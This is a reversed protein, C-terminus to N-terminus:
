DKDGMNNRYETPTQGVIKQFQQHLNARHNFGAMLAVRELPIEPYEKLIRKAEAIRLESRWTRFDSPMYCRFYYRLFNRNTGLWQVIDDVGVDKQRYMKDEVWKELAAKLRQEEERLNLKEDETLDQSEIETIEEILNEKGSLATILFRMDTVYNYIRYVMYSYYATYILIFFSYFFTDMFLSFFAFIGIGLASYFCFKVWGLRKDQEEDYYEEAQRLSKRYERRFLRTYFGLQFLYLMVAAYFVSLYLRNPSCASSLALAVGIITIAYLQTVIWKKKIIARIFILTTATFLLAQYSAILLTSAMLVPDSETEMQLFYSFFGSAALIFYSFSLYKRGAHLNKLSEEKPIYIGLLLFGLVLIISSSGFTLIYHTILMGMIFQTNASYEM